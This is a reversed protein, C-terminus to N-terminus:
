AAISIKNSISNLSHHNNHPNYILYPLHILMSIISNYSIITSLQSLNLCLIKSIIYNTFLDSKLTRQKKKM